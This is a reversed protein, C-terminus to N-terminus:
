RKKGHRDPKKGRNDHRDKVVKVKPPQPKKVKPHHKPPAVKVLVHGRGDCVDCRSWGLWAKYWTRVKGRGDCVRCERRDPGRHKDHRSKASLTACSVLVSLLVVIRAFTM